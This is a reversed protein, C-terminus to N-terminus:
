RDEVTLIWLQAHRLTKRRCMTHPRGTQETTETHSEGCVEERAPRTAGHALVRQDNGVVIAYPFSIFRVKSVARDASLVSGPEAGELSFVTPM